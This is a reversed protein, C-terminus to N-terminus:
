RLAEQITGIADGIVIGMATMVVITSVILGVGVIGPLYQKMLMM